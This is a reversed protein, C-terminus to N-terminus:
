FEDQLQSANVASPIQQMFLTTSNTSAINELKSWHKLHSFGFQALLFDTFSVKLIQWQKVVGVCFAHLIHCSLDLYTWKVKKFKQESWKSNWKFSTFQPDHLFSPRDHKLQNPHELTSMSVMEIRSTHPISTSLNWKLLTQSVAFCM